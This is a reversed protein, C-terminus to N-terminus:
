RAPLGALWRGELTAANGHPKGLYAVIDGIRHDKTKFLL